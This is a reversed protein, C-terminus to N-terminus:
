LLLLHYSKLLLNRFDEAWSGGVVISENKWMHYHRSFILSDDVHISITFKEIFMRVLMDNVVELHDVLLFNNNKIDRICVDVDDIKFLLCNAWDVVDVMELIDNLHPNLCKLIRFIKRNNLLSGIIDMIEKDSEVVIIISM